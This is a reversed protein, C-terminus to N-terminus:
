QEHFHQIVHFETPDPMNTTSIVGNRGVCLYAGDLISKIRTTGNLRRELAWRDCRSSIANQALVARVVGDKV